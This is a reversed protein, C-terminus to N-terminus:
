VEKGYITINVIRQAFNPDYGKDRLAKARAMGNGYTGNKIKEALELMENVKTQYTLYSGEGFRKEIANFRDKGNGYKGLLIELMIM